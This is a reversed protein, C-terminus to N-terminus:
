SHEGGLRLSLMHLGRRLRSKVTDTPADVVEAIEALSMGEHFRLTLVERYYPPLRDMAQSVLEREQEAALRDFASPQGVDPVDFPSESEPDFDERMTGPNKRRMEDIALNRAVRLLWGEFPYNPNYRTGREVVRLWTEQFLDDALNRDRTLYVLYRYLRHQYKGILYGILDPDRRRLGRAIEITEDGMLSEAYHIAAPMSIPIRFPM